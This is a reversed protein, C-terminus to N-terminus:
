FTIISLAKMHYNFFFFGIDHGQATFTESTVKYECCQAGGGEKLDPFFHRTQTFAFTQVGRTLIPDLFSLPKM